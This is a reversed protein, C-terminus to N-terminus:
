RRPRVHLWAARRELAAKRPKVEAELLSKFPPPDLTLMRAHLVDGRFAAISIGDGPRYRSLLADLKGPAVRLGDFAILVDGASLGARHAAGGDEVQAVRLEGNTTALRAGLSPQGPRRLRRLRLGMDSLLDALPLETTGYAWASVPERVDVGTAEFVIDPFEDEGLGRRGEPYFDKGYRTWLLLMADDLSRRDRSERRILLDLCLAILSGKRYYSVVANPTNEDSRYYKTWADFSSEAVSQLTRGHGSLVQDVTTVLAELYQTEDILGTRVLFLDDYYSTFGEFIWLLATHNERDLDYPAFAAPKIRKVNWSHFYEHSALGLFTRYAASRETAGEAPLADRSCLLATSARHELGGYGEGAVNTLFVYRDFPAGASVKRGGGGFFRIQAACLTALDRNVRAADFHPVVGTYAIEHPVGAADFRELRFRGMEVPHDILADYDAARYHGFGRADVDRAPLSTAVRWDRYAAGQPAALAVDHAEGEFELARLFVSTGNFFAHGEDFHAARVSPDWAYVRYRVTLRGNCPAAQWSHKDLKVLDVARGGSSVDIAVINRAFERIMYSGPIWAPLALRQGAASPRDIECSVDIYHGRPDALDVRYRVPARDHTAAARPAAKRASM